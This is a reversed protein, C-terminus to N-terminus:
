GRSPGADPRNILAECRKLAEVNEPWRLWGMADEYTFWAWADHEAPDITPDVKASLIALFVTETVRPGRRTSSGRGGSPSFTYQYDIPVLGIPELRTEEVLERVAAADLAEGPEVAGSVGQWFGGRPPIRRLLLYEHGYTAPAVPYVLVTLFSHPVVSHRSEIADLGGPM